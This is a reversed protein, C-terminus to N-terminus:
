HAKYFAALVDGAIKGKDSVDFGNAQAWSRIKATEGSGNPTRVSGKEFYPAVVKGLKSTCAECLDVTVTQDDLTLKHTEAGEAQDVDCVIKSVVAM